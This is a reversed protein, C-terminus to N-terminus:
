LFLLFVHRSCRPLVDKWWASKALKSWAGNEAGHKCRCTKSSALSLPEKSTGVMSGPVAQPSHPVSSSLLIQTEPLLWNFLWVLCVGQSLHFYVRAASFCVNHSVPTLPPAVPINRSVPSQALCWSAGSSSEAPWSRQCCLLVPEGPWLGEALLGQAFGRGAGLRLEEWM